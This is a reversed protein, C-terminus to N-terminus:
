LCSEVTIKRQQEELMAPNAVNPRALLIPSEASPLVQANPNSMSPKIERKM